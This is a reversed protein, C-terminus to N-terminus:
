LATSWSKHLQFAVAGGIGLLLFAVPVFWVPHPFSFVNVLSLAGLLVAIVWVLHSNRGIWAALSGGVLGAIGLGGAAFAFLTQGESVGHGIMEVVGLSAGGAFVGATGGLLPRIWNAM